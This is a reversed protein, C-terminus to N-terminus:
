SDEQVGSENQGGLRAEPKHTDQTSRAMLRTQAIKHVRVFVKEMEVSPSAKAPFEGEM